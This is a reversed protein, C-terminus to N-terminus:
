RCWDTEEALRSEGLRVARHPSVYLRVDRNISRFCEVSYVYVHLDGHIRCCVRNSKYTITALYERYSRRLRQCGLRHHRRLLGSRPMRSGRCGKGQRHLRVGQSQPESRVGKRGPQEFYLESAGVCRLGSPAVKVDSTLTM